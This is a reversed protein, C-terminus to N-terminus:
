SSRGREGRSNEIPRSPRGLSVRAVRIFENTADLCKVFPLNEPETGRMSAGWLDILAASLDRAKQLAEDPAILQMEEHLHMFPKTDSVTPKGDFRYVSTDRLRRAEALYSAYLQRLDSDWRSAKERRSRSWELLFTSLQSLVVGLLAMSGALAPV